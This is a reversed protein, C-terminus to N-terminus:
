SRRLIKENALEHVRKSLADYTPHKESLDMNMGFLYFVPDGDETLARLLHISCRIDVMKLITELERFDTDDTM